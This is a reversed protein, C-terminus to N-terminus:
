KVQFEIRLSQMREQATDNWALSDTKRHGVARLRGADIGARVLYDAVAEARRRSLEIDARADLVPDAPGSVEIHAEPCRMAIAVLHDLAAASDTQITAEGIDFLISGRDLIRALLPQCAAVEVTAASPEVGVAAVVAYGKPVGASLAAPIQSAAKAYFAEGKLSVHTDSVAGTGSALRSLQELMEAVAAGFDAPAGERYELKDVLTADFFQRRATTLIEQHVAEDPVSGTLTVVGERRSAALRYPAVVAEEIDIVGVRIGPPLARRVAARVAAAAKANAAQGTVSLTTDTLSADGRTLAGLETMALAAAARFDVRPPLSSGIKLEDAVAGSGGAAKAAAVVADRDSVSPAYGELTLGQRGKRVTFTFPHGAPAVVGNHALDFSAPLGAKIDGAITEATIGDKGTGAISLHGDTFTVVGHVLKGLEDLALCIAAEFDGPPAGSAMQLRSEVAGGTVASAAKIVISDRVESSPVSGKLSVTKGDSTATWIYPKAVPPEIHVEFLTGHSPLQRTAAIAEDYIAASPAVGAISYATGLLSATGEGLKSAEKLGYIAMAAFDDPAGRGYAMRDVIEGGPLVAKAAEVIMTRAAPLPVYGTLVLANGAHRAGFWYPMVMPVPRIRNNVLRVGVSEDAARVADNEAQETFATGILTVDRGLVMLAPDMVLNGAAKVATRARVALEAEVRATMTTNALAWIMLVLVSGIWWNNSESMVREALLNHGVGISSGPTAEKRCIQTLVGGEVVFTLRPSASIQNFRLRRRPTSAIVGRTVISLDCVFVYFV